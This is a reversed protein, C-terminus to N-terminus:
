QMLKQDKGGGVDKTFTNANRKRKLKGVSMLPMGNTVPQAILVVDSGNYTLKKQKSANYGPSTLQLNSFLTAGPVTRGLYLKELDADKGSGSASTFMLEIWDPMEVGARPIIHDAQAIALNGDSVGADDDDADSMLAYMDAVTFTRSGTEPVQWKSVLDEVLQRTRLRNFAYAYHRMWEPFSEDIAAMSLSKGANGGDCRYFENPFNIALHDLYAYKRDTVPPLALVRSYQGAVAERCVVLRSIADDEIAYTLDDFPIPGTPVGYAKRILAELNDELDQYEDAAFEPIVYFPIKDSYAGSKLPELKATEILIELHAKLNLHNECRAYKQNKIQAAITAVDGVAKIKFPVYAVVCAEPFRWDRNVNYKLEVAYLVAHDKKASQCWSKLSQEFKNWQGSQNSPQDMPVLNTRHRPGGFQDGIVHGDHQHVLYRDQAVRKFSAKDPENGNYRSLSKESKNSAPLAGAPYPSSLPAIVAGVWRVRQRAQAQGGPAVYTTSDDKFFEAALIKGSAM